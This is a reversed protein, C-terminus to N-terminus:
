YWSMRVLHSFNWSLKLVTKFNWSYWSNWSLQSGQFTNRTYKVAYTGGGFSRGKALVSILVNSTSYLMLLVFMLKGRGRKFGCNSFSWRVDQLIKKSVTWGTSEPWWDWRRRRVEQLNRVSVNHKTRAGETYSCWHNPIGKRVSDTWEICKVREPAKKFRVKELHSKVGWLPLSWCRQNM